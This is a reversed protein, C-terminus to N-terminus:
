TTLLLKEVAAINVCLSLLRTAESIESVPPYTPAIRINQEKPDKYYPFTSGTPLISLGIQDSLEKVRSACGEMVDLSIFYGGKPASWRAIGTPALEKEFVKIVAEFKPRSIDSVKSMHERIGQLNKYFRVHRMQNIKDFNIRQFSLYKHLHALQEDGTGIATIGGGPFSIKSTSTYQIAMNTKGYKSLENYLPLLNIPTQQDFEHVAYANDYLIVFDKAAPSLKALRRITEDCYVVGTPNSFKPVCLIAKVCEDQVYEEVLGMDPGTSLMPIYVLEFGFYGCMEFHRDYGPAPCLVKINKLKNWATPSNYLGHIYALCLTSHMLSLSSVGGVYVNNKPIELIESMLQRAESIGELTGYQRVDYCNESKYDEENKLVSLLGASLELMEDSPLGRLISYNNGKTVEKNFEAMLEDKIKKLEDKSMNKYLPM